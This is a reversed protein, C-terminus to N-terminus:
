IFGETKSVAIAYAVYINLFKNFEMVTRTAPRCHRRHWSRPPEASEDEGFVTLLHSCEALFVAAIGSKYVAAEEHALGLHKIQHIIVPRNPFTLRHLLKNVFPLKGGEAM